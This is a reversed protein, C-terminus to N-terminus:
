WRINFECISSTREPNLGQTDSEDQKRQTTGTFSGKKSQREGRNELEPKGEFLNDLRRSLSHAKELTTSDEVETTSLM